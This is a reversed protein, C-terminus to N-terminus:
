EGRNKSLLVCECPRLRVHKSASEYVYARVCQPVCACVCARVNVHLSLTVYFQRHCTLVYCSKVLNLLIAM